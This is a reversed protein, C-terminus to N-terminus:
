NSVTEQLVNYPINEKRINQEIQIIVGHSFFLLMYTEGSKVVPSKRPLADTLSVEPFHESHQTEKQKSDGGGQLM